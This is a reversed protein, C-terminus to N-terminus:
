LGFSHFAGANHLLFTTRPYPPLNGQLSLHTTARNSSSPVTARMGMQSRENRMVMVMSSLTILSHLASTFAYYLMPPNTVAQVPDLM